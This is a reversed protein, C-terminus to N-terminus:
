PRYNLVWQCQRTRQVLLRTGFPTNVQTVHTPGEFCVQTWQPMAPARDRPASRDGFGSGESLALQLARHAGSVAMATREAEHRWGAALLVRMFDFSHGGFSQGDGGSLAVESHALEHALVSRLAPQGLQWSPIRIVHEGGTYTGGVSPGFHGPDCVVLQPMNAASRPFGQQAVQVATEALRHDVWCAARAPSLIALLGWLLFEIAPRWWPFAHM